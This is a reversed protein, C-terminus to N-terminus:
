NWLSKDEITGLYKFETNFKHGSKVELTPYGEESGLTVLQHTNVFMFNAYSYGYEFVDGFQLDEFRTPALRTNTEDGVKTLGTSATAKYEVVAAKLKDCPTITREPIKKLWQSNIWQDGLEECDVEVDFHVDEFDLRTVTLEIGGNHDTWGFGVIVGKDRKHKEKLLYKGGVKINKLKM